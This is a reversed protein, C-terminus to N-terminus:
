EMVVCTYNKDPIFILKPNHGGFSTNDTTNFWIGLEGEFVEMLFADGTLLKSTEVETTIRDDWDSCDKVIEQVCMETLNVDKYLKNVKEITEYEEDLNGLIEVREIKLGLFIINEAVYFDSEDDFFFKEKTLESYEIEPISYEIELMSNESYAKLKKRWAIKNVIYQCLMSRVTENLTLIENLKKYDNLNVKNLMEKIQKDDNLLKEIEEISLKDFNKTHGLLRILESVYDIGISWFTEGSINDGFLNISWSEAKLDAEPNNNIYLEKIEEISM